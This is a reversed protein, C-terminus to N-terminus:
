VLRSVVVAFLIKAAEAVAIMGGVYPNAFVYKSNCDVTM